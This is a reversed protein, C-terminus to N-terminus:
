SEKVAISEVANALDEFADACKELVEVIDKLKIVMIPDLGTDFLHKLTRRYAKDGENELRNIEVWYDRLEIPKKLKPMNEATLRACKDLVAVQKGLLGYVPEPINGLRYLVMLDGAEDILDMCDDLFSALDSIDERDFPTIFSQNLKNIVQHNLEDADHEVDHLHDRPESRNEESSNFIKGLLEVGLVLQDAQSTLLDFFSPGRDKRMGM